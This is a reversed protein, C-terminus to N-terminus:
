GRCGLPLDSASTDWLMIEDLGDGDFDHALARARGGDDPLPSWTARATWSDARTDQAPRIGVAAHARRGIRRLPGAADDISRPYDRTWLLKLTSDYLSVIGRNGHFLV